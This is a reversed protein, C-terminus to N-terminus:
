NMILLIRPLFSIHVSWGVRDRSMMARSGQKDSPRPRISEKLTATEELDESHVPVRPFPLLWPRVALVFLGKSEQAM